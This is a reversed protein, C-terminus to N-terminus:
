YTFDLCAPLYNFSSYFVLAKGEQGKGNEWCFAGFSDGYLVTQFTQIPQHRIDGSPQPFNLSPWAYNHGVTIRAIDSGFISPYQRLVAGLLFAFRAQFIILAFCFLIPKPHSKLPLAVSRSARLESELVVLLLFETFNSFNNRLLVELFDLADEQHWLYIESTSYYFHVSWQLEPVFV